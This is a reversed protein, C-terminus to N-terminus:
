ARRSKKRVRVNGGQKERENQQVISYIIFSSIARCESWYKTERGKIAQTATERKENKDLGSFLHHSKLKKKKKNKILSNKRFGNKEDEKKKTIAIFIM